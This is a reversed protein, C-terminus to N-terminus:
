RSKRLQTCIELGESILRQALSISIGLNAAVERLKMGEIHYMKIAARQREPMDNIANLVIDLTHRSDVIAEPSPTSDVVTRAADDFDNGETRSLAHRRARVIALNHIITKLYGVPSAIHETSTRQDFLLWADHVIDEAISIDGGTVRGAYAVLTARHAEYLHLSTIKSKM